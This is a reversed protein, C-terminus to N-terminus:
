VNKEEYKQKRPKATKRNARINGKNDSAAAIQNGKTKKTSKEVGKILTNLDKYIEVRRRKKVYLIHRDKLHLPDHITILKRTKQGMIRSKERM